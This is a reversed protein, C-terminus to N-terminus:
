LPDRFFCCGAPLGSDLRFLEGSVLFRLADLDGSCSVAAFRFFVVSDIALLSSLISVTNGVGSAKNFEIVSFLFFFIVEGVSGSSSTGDEEADSGSKSLITSM